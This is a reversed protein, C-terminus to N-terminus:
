SHSRRRWARRFPRHQRAARVSSGGDNRSCTCGPFRAGPGSWPRARRVRRSSCCWTTRCACSVSIEGGPRHRGNRPHTRLIAEGRWWTSREARNKRSRRLRGVAWQELYGDVRIGRDGNAIVAILELRREMSDTGAGTRIGSLRPTVAYQLRSQRLPQGVSRALRTTYRILVSALRSRYM